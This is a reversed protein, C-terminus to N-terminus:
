VDRWDAGSLYPQFDKKKNLQIFTPFGKEQALEAAAHLELNCSEYQGPGSVSLTTTLELPTWSLGLAQCIEKKQIIWQCSFLAM